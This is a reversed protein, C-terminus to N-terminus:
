REREGYIYIHAHTNKIMWPKMMKITINGINQSIHGGEEPTQWARSGEWFKLGHGKNLVRPDSTKIGNVM